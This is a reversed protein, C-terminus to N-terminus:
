TYDPAEPDDSETWVPGSYDLEGFAKKCRDMHRRRVQNHSETLMWTQMYTLSYASYYDRGEIRAKKLATFSNTTDASVEMVEENNENYDDEATLWNLASIFVSAVRSPQRPPDIEFSQTKGRLRKDMSASSREVKCSSSTGSTKDSCVSVAM